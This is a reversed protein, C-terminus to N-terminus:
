INITANKFQKLLQGVFLSMENQQEQKYYITLGAHTGVERLSLYIYFGQVTKYIKENYKISTDSYDIKSVSYVITTKMKNLYGEIEKPVSIVNMVSYVDGNKELSSIYKPTDMIYFGM